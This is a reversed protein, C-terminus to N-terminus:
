CGESCPRGTCGGIISRISRKGPCLTRALNCHHLSNPPTIFLTGHEPSSAPPPRPYRSIDLSSAPTPVCQLSCMFWKPWMVGSLRPTIEHLFEFEFHLRCAASQGRVQPSSFVFAWASPAWLLALVTAVGRMESVIRQYVLERGTRSM